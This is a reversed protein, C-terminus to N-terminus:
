PLVSTCALFECKFVEAFEPQTLSVLQENSSSIQIEVHSTNKRGRARLTMFGLIKLTAM